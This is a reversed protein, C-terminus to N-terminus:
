ATAEDSVHVVGRNLTKVEGTALTAQIDYDGSYKGVTLVVTQARSPEFRLTQPNALVLSGSVQVEIARTRKNRITLTSSGGNLDPWTGGDVIEIPDGTATSYDDGKVLELVGEEPMPSPVITASVGIQATNAAIANVSAQSAAVKAADYGSILAVPAVVSAVSGAVGAVRNEADVTAVGGAGGPAANPVGTMIRATAAGHTGSAVPLADIAWAVGTRDYIDIEDGDQAEAASAYVYGGAPTETLPVEYSAWNAVVFAEYASGNWYLGAANRRTASLTSGTQDYRYIIKTM